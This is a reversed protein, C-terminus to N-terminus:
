RVERANLGVFRVRVVGRALGLLLSFVLPPCFQIKQVFCSLSRLHAEMRSRRSVRGCAGGPPNGDFLVVDTATVLRVRPGVAPSGDLEVFLM